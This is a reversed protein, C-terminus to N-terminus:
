CEISYLDFGLFEMFPNEKLITLVVVDCKKFGSQTFIGEISHIFGFSYYNHLSSGLQSLRFKIEATLKIFKRATQIM